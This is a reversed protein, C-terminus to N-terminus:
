RKESSADNVTFSKDLDKMSIKNIIVLLIKDSFTRKLIFLMYFDM